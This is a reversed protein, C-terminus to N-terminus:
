QDAGERERMAAVAEDIVALDAYAQRVAASKVYIQYPVGLRAAAAKVVQLSSSEWSFTTMQRRGDLADNDDGGVTAPGPSTM